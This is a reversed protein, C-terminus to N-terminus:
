SYKVILVGVALLTYAGTIPQVICVIASTIILMYGIEAPLPRKADRVYIQALRGAVAIMFGFLNTWLLTSAHPHKFITNFIMLAGVPPYYQQM